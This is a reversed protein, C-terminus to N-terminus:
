RGNRSEKITLKISGMSHGSDSVKLRYDGPPIRDFTVAGQRALYSAQERGGSVLSLRIGEAVSGNKLKVRVAVQCLDNETREVEVTISYQGLEKEVELIGSDPSKAKGRVEAAAVTSVLRGSTTVLEVSDLVLRVVLDLFSEDGEGPPILAMAREVLRDPAMEAEPDQATKYVAVLDDACARCNALHAEIVNRTEAGGHGSLYEAMAEETICGIREGQKQSGLLQRVILEMEKEELQAM